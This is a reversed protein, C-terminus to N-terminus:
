AERLFGVSWQEEAQMVYCLSMAKRDGSYTNSNM